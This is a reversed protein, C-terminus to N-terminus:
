AALKIRSVPGAAGAPANEEADMGHRQEVLTSMLADISNPKSLVLDIGANIASHYQDARPATALWVHRPRVSSHKQISEVRARWTAETAAQAISDDWWVVDFNRATMLNANRCWFATVDASTALAMLPDANNWNAAIVAVSRRSNSTLAAPEDNGSEACLAGSRFLSPLVQNWRHWYFQTTLPDNTKQNASQRTKHGEWLSGHIELLRAGPYMKAIQLLQHQHSSHRDIQNVVVMKVDSAPRSVADETHPRYALQGSNSECCQYADTAELSTREGIWVVTGSCFETGSCSNIGSCSDTGSYFETGSYSDTDATTQHNTKCDHDSRRTSPNLRYM